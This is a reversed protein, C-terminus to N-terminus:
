VGTAHDLVAAGVRLVLSRALRRLYAQCRERVSLLRLDLAQAHQRLDHAPLGLFPRSGGLRNELADVPQLRLLHARRPALALDLDRKRIRRAAPTDRQADFPEGLAVAPRQDKAVDR